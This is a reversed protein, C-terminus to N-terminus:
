QMLEWVNGDVNFDLLISREHGNVFARKDKDHVNYIGFDIYNDGVPNHKDYVWGVVHGAKTLPIGLMEYVENLFVRGKEKLLKNAYAQQNKLFILNYEPDKTWGTCYEDFFRAYDSEENITAVEVHKKVVSETGDENVVTEEIETAKINYKLERDLEKGFREIVRGRYEKFSNDVTAYAAALAVNRTRLINHSKVISLASVTGLAIAPGYLKVLELATKAYVITLDKKKDEPTYDEKPRLGAEVDAAVDHIDNIDKKAKDLVDNVKLTSKCAMVTTVGFGVLGAVVMIEPSHKKLQFGVSHFTRSLNNMLELKTM